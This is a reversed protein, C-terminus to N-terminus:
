QALYGNREDSGTQLINGSDSQPYPYGGFDETAEYAHTGSNPNTLGPSYLDTSYDSWDFDEFSGTYVTNSMDLDAVVENPCDFGELPAAMPIFHSSEFLTLEAFLDLEFTYQNL